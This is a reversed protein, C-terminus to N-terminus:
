GRNTGRIPNQKFEGSQFPKSMARGEFNMRPIKNEEGNKKTTSEVFGDGKVSLVSGRLM